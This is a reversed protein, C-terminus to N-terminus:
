ALLSEEDNMKPKRTIRFNDVKKLCHKLVKDYVKVEFANVEDPPLDDWVKFDGVKKPIKFLSWCFRNDPLRDKM